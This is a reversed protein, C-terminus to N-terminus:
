VFDIWKKKYHLSHFSSVSLYTMSTHNGNELFGLICAKALVSISSRPVLTLFPHLAIYNKKEKCEWGMRLHIDLLANYFALSSSFLWLNPVKGDFCALQSLWIHIYNHSFSTM